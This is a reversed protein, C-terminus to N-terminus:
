GLLNIHCYLGHTRYGCLNHVKKLAPKSITSSLIVVGAIVYFVGSSFILLVPRPLFQVSVHVCTISFAPLSHIPTAWTFSRILTASYCCSMCDGYHAKKKELGFNRSLITM